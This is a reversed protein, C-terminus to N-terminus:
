KARNRWIGDTKKQSYFGGCDTIMEDYILGDAGNHFCTVKPKQTEDYGRFLESYMRGVRKPTGIIGERDPNEGIEKLIETWLLEIKIKDM